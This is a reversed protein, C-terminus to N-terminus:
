PPRSGTTGGFIATAPVLNTTGAVMGAAVAILALRRLGQSPM